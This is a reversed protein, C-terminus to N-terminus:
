KVIDLLEVEFILTSYPKIPGTAREGYGLDQPIYIMWKSGVPMMSLAESWGKIVQKLTFEAPVGRRYSSDFEKGDITMGRYDVRVKDDMTPKQGSGAVLVKYQLGSPMQVISDNKANDVLFAENDAKYQALAKDQLEKQLAKMYDDVQKVDMQMSDSLFSAAMADVFLQRDIHLTTDAELMPKMMKEVREARVLLGHYLGVIEAVREEDECESGKVLGKVFAEYNTSDMGFDSALRGKLVPGGNAYGLCYSLSDSRDALVFTKNEKKGDKKRGKAAAPMCLLCALLVIIVNKVM